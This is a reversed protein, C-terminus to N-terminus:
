GRLTAVFDHFLYENDWPGPRAEPHYQVSFIPLERHVLGEVTGDNLNVHSVDFESADLSEPDVAFGHNQSTIHVRGTRLDKVPQNGGRHGFKLKFTRGGFSLALLQHGLCIGFLPVRGALERMTRVTTRVLDPHAPDGPGNSVIVGDPHLALIAESSSDYPVRVVRAHRQAERIIHMKVGCDVVAITRRAPGPYEISTRTGVEAVLNRREPHAMGRVHRLADDVDATAPVLGAKMTGQTRIRIALMRTDTGQIGPIRNQTLFESVSMESDRHSPRPCAERVVFGTVQIRESERAGLDVGYNGILPYTMLLIQGRYSPDTLAETYGTMNTNFVLEGFAKRRAGFMAGRVVTGDELVLSGEMRHVGVGDGVGTILTADVSRKKDWGENRAAHQLLGHLPQELIPSPGNGRLTAHRGRMPIPVFRDEAKELRPVRPGERFTCRLRGRDPARDEELGWGIILHFM